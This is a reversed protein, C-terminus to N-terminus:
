KLVFSITLEGQYGRRKLEDFLQKDTANSITPNDRYEGTVGNRLRGHERCCDICWSQLGKGKRYFSSIPLERGCNACKRTKEFLEQQESEKAIPQAEIINELEIVMYDPSEKRIDSKSVRFYYDGEKLHFFECIEKVFFKGSATATVRKGQLNYSLKISDRGSLKKRTLMVYMKGNEEGIDLFEFGKNFFEESMEQNFTFTRSSPKNHITMMTASLRHRNQMKVVGEKKFKSESM